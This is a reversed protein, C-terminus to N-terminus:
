FEDLLKEQLVILQKKLIIIRRKINKIEETNKADMNYNCDKGERLKPYSM